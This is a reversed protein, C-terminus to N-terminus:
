ALAELEGKLERLLTPMPEQADLTDALAICRDIVMIKLSPAKIPAVRIQAIKQDFDIFADMILRDEDTQLGDDQNAPNNGGGDVAVIARLKDDLSWTNIGNESTKTFAHSNAKNYLVGDIQETTFGEAMAKDKLQKTTLEFHRTLTKLIFEYPTM